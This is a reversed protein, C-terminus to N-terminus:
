WRGSADREYAQRLVAQARGDTVRVLRGGQDYDIATGALKIALDKAKAAMIKRARRNFTQNTM